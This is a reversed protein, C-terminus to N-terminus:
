RIGRRNLEASYRRANRRHQAYTEAFNHYGSFDERACFYLYKHKSYNLVADIAAKSPMCIPTPPLGKYKYTNYPSDIKLHKHLIRRLKFDGTAYKVTPDAQLLMGKHLRNIYVGAVVPMEDTKRTEEYVISALTVAQMRTMPIQVLLQSRRPTWFRDWEGKMRNVIQLPETNWYMQYTDPIFVAFMELPSAFGLAQAVSDSLLVSAIQSSDAEIQSALRAALQQPTRANNIVVNKPTQQGLRLMRAVQICNMTDHLIYRGPRVAEDMDLGIRRAYFDFFPRFRIRGDSFLSDHLASYTSRSPVLLEGGVKVCPSKAAVFVGCTFAAFALALASIISIVIRKAKPSMIFRPFYMCIYITKRVKVNM